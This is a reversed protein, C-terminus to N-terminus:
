PINISDGADLGEQAQILYPEAWLEGRTVLRRSLFFASAFEGNKLLAILEVEDENETNDEIEHVVIDGSDPTFRNALNQMKSLFEDRIDISPQRWPLRKGTEMQVEMRNRFQDRVDLHPANNQAQDYCFWAEDFSGRREHARALETWMEYNQPRNSLLLRALPICVDDGKSKWLREVRRGFLVNCRPDSLDLIEFRDCFNNIDTESLSEFWLDPDLHDRSLAAELLENGVDLIQVNALQKVLEPDRGLVSFLDSLLARLGVEDSLMVKVTALTRWNDPHTFDHLLAQRANQEAWGLNETRRDPDNELLRLFKQSQSRHRDGLSRRPHQLSGALGQTL